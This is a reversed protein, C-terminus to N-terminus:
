YTEAVVIKKVYDGNTSLCRVLYIGPKLQPLQISTSPSELGTETHYIIVGNLASVEVLLLKCSKNFVKLEAPFGPCYDISICDEPIISSIATPICDPATGTKTKLIGAEVWYNYWSGGTTTEWDNLDFTNSGNNTGKIICVNLAVSDRQWQLPQASQCHEPSNVPLECNPIIFYANDNEAPYDGYVRAIGTTDICVATYEDCAIGRAQMGYDQYARALFVVHRGRRDPNDYHTDTIVNELFHLNLFRASDVTVTPLYPNSLASTSTASGNEATFYLQGLIAMGASTGGVVIHRNEVADRILSDVATNRWYSVYDWQDGGAFWIAEAHAIKDLVYPEASAAANNFVISEVSNVTIGLQSYFYANYGNSGSARIVLIDGGDARQLFWKMAEDNETAGGMMCIGGHPYTILDNTNGTFYSTYTQTHGAKIMGLILIVFLLRRM